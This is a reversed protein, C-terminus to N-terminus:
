GVEEGEAQEGEPATMVARRIEGATAKSVGVAKAFDGLNMEAGTKERFEALIKAARAERQRMGEVAPRQRSAMEAAVKKRLATDATVWAPAPKEAPRPDSGRNRSGAPAEAPALEPVPPRNGSGTGSGHGPVPEPTVAPAATGPEALVPAPGSTAVVPRGLVWRKYIRVKEYHGILAYLLFLDGADLALMLVYGGWLHYAPALVQASGTASVAMFCITVAFVGAKVWWDGVAKVAHGLIVSNVPPLIGAPVAVLLNLLHTDHYLNFFLTGSSTLVIGAWLFFPSGPKEPDAKVSQAASTKRHESV